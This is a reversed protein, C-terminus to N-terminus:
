QQRQYFFVCRSFMYQAYTQSVLCDALRKTVHENLAGMSVALKYEEIASAYAMREYSRDAIRTHADADGQAMATGGTCLVVALLINHLWGRM